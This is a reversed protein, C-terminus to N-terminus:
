REVRLASAPDINAARQAPLWAASLASAALVLAVAIFIDGSWPSVRYLLGGMARAVALSLLLGAALGSLVIVGTRTLELRLIQAATAGVALRIGFERTHRAVSLSAVGFLGLASLFLAVAAFSALLGTGFRRPLTVSQLIREMTQPHTVPEAADLQWVARQVLPVLGAPNMHSRIVLTDSYYPSASLLRYFQMMEPKELSGYHVNGVVGIVRVPPNDGDSFRKGIPDEGPWLHKAM